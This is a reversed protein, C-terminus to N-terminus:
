PCATSGPPCEEVPVDIRDCFLFPAPPPPGGLFLYSLGRIVDTLSEEGDGDCDAAPRCRTRAGGLFLESLLWVADSISVRGDENVDCRIFPGVSSAKVQVVCEKVTLPPDGRDVTVYDGVAINPGLREPGAAGPFFKSDSRGIRNAFYV